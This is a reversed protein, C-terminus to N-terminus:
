FEPPWCYSSWPQLSRVLARQVVDNAKIRSDISTAFAHGQAHGRGATLEFQKLTARVPHHMCPMGAPGDPNGFFTKCSTADLFPTPGSVPLLDGTCTEQHKSVATIAALLWALWAFVRM